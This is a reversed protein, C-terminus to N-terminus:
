GEWYFMAFDGYRGSHKKVFNVLDEFSEIVCILKLDDWEKCTEESLPKLSLFLGDAYEYEPRYIYVKVMEIV